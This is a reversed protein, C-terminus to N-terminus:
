LICGKKCMPLFRINRQWIAILDDMGVATCAIHVSELGSPNALDAKIEIEAGQETQILMSGAPVEIKPTIGEPNGLLYENEDDCATLFGVSVVLALFFLIKKM